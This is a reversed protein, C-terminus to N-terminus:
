LQIPMHKAVCADVVAAVIDQTRLTELDEVTVSGKGTRHKLSPMPRPSSRGALM